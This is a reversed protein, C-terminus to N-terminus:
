RQTRQALLRRLITWVTSVYPNSGSRLLYYGGALTLSSTAATAILRIAPYVARLGYGVAFGAGFAAVHLLLVLVLGRRMPSQEGRETKRLAAFSIWSSVIPFALEAAAAGVVGYRKALLWVCGITVAGGVVIARAGIQPYGAGVLYFYPVVHIGQLAYVVVFVVFPTLVSAALKKGIWVELFSPAAAAGITAIGIMMLVGVRWAQYLPAATAQTGSDAQRASFFPMLVRSVSVCADNLRSAANQAVAFVGVASLGLTRGVLMKDLHGVAMRGLAVLMSYVGFGVVKRMTKRVHWERFPLWALTRAALLSGVILATWTVVVSTFALGSIAGGLALVLLGICVFLTARTLNLMQSARFRQKGDFIGTVAPMTVAPAFAIAVLRIIDAARSAKAGSLRLVGHTIPEALWALVITGVVGVVAYLSVTAIVVRTVESTRGTSTYEAVYKTTADGLGLNLVGVIALTSNALTWLGYDELGLYRIFLPVGVLMLM